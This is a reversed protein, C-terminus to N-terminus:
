RIPSEHVGEVILRSPMGQSDFKQVGEVYVPTEGALYKVAQRLTTDRKVPPISCFLDPKDNPRQRLIFTGTDIDVSRLKGEETVRKGVEPGEHSMVSDRTEETDFGLAADLESRLRLIEQYQILAVMDLVDPSGDATERMTLLGHELRGIQDITVKANDAHHTNQKM